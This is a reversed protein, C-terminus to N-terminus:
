TQIGFTLVTTPDSSECWTSVLDPKRQLSLSFGSAGEADVHRSTERASITADQEQLWDPTFPFFASASSTWLALQLLPVTRM